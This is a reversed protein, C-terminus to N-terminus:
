FDIRFQIGSAREVYDTNFFRDRVEQQFVREQHMNYRKASAVAGVINTIYFFLGVFGFVGSATHPRDAARELDYLAAASGLFFANFFFAMLGDVEHGAYWQGSGPLVSSFIGALWGSKRPRKQFQELATLVGGAALRIAPEASEKQLQKYHEYARAYDAQELLVTGSLLEVEDKQKPRFSQNRLAYERDRRVTDLYGVRLSAYMRLYLLAFPHRDNLYKLSGAYDRSRMLSLALKARLEAAPRGTEDARLLAKEYEGGALRYKENKYFYDGFDRSQLGAPTTTENEADVPAVLLFVVISFIPFAKSM